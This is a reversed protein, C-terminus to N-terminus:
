KNRKFIKSFWSSEKTNDNDITVAEETKPPTLVKAYILNIQTNAKALEQNNEILANNAKLTEVLEVSKEKIHHAQEQLQQDKRDIQQELQQIREKLDTYERDTVNGYINNRDREIVNKLRESITEDTKNDTEITENNTDITGVTDIRENLIIKKIKIYDEDEILNTKSGRKTTINLKDILTYIKTRSVELEEAAKTITRM